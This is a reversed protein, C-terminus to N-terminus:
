AFLAIAILIGQAFHTVNVSNIENAEVEEFIINNKPAKNIINM